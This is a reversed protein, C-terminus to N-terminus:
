ISKSKKKSSSVNKKSNMKIVSSTERFIIINVSFKFFFEKNFKKKIKYRNEYRSLFKWNFNETFKVIKKFILVLSTM